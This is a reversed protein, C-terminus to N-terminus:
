EPGRGHAPPGRRPGQEPLRLEWGRRQAGVPEGGAIAHPMGGERSGILVVSVARHYECEVDLRVLAALEPGFHAHIGPMLQERMRVLEAQHFPQLCDPRRPQARWPHYPTTGPM